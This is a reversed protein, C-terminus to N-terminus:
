NAFVLTGSIISYEQIEPVREFLLKAYDGYAM